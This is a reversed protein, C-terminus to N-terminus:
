ACGLLKPDNEIKRRRKEKYATKFILCNHFLTKWLISQEWNNNIQWPEFDLGWILFHNPGQTLGSIGAADDSCRPEGPQTPPLCKKNIVKFALHVLRVRRNCILSRIGLSTVTPQGQLWEVLLPSVRQVRVGLVNHQKRSKKRARPYLCNNAMGTGRTRQWLPWQIRM